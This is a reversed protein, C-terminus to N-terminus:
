QGKDFSFIIIKEGENKLVQKSVISGESYDILESFKLVTGKEFLIDM